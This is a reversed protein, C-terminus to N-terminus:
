NFTHQSCKVAKLSEINLTKNSCIISKPAGDKQFRSLLIFLNYITCKLRM